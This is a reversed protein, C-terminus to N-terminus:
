CHSLLTTGVDSGPLHLHSVLPGDLEPHVEVVAFRQDCGVVAHGFQQVERDAALFEAELRQPDAVAEEGLRAVLGDGQQRRDGLAGACTLSPVAQRTVEGRLGSYRASSHAM